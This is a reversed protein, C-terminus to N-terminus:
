LNRNLLILHFHQASHPYIYFYPDYCAHQDSQNNSKDLEQVRQYEEGKKLGM